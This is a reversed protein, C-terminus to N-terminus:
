ANGKADEQQIMFTHRGGYINLPHGNWMNWIHGKISNLAEVM